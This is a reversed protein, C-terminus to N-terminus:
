ETVQNWLDEVGQEVSDAADSVAEDVDHAGQAVANGITEGAGEAMHGIGSLINGDDFDVAAQHSQDAGVLDFLGDGLADGGAHTVESLADHVTPLGTEHAVADYVDTAELSAVGLAHESMDLASDTAGDWNGEAAYAVAGAASVATEAVGVADEAAEAGLGESM